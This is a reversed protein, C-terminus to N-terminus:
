KNSLTPSEIPNVKSDSFIASTSFSASVSFFAFVGIGPVIEFIKTFCPSLIFFPSAIKAIYAIFISCTIRADNSVVTFFIFEFSPSNTSAWRYITSSYHYSLLIFLLFFSFNLKHKAPFTYSAIIFTLYYYLFCRFWSPFLFYYRLLLIFFFTLFFLPGQEVIQPFFISASWPYLWPTKM